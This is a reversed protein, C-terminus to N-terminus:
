GVINVAPGRSLWTNNRATHAGRILPPVAGGFLVGSGLGGGEVSGVGVGVEM